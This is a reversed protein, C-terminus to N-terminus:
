NKYVEIRLIFALKYFAQERVRYYKSESFGMENYIEYDYLDELTMYRKTILERERMNLRNVAKRIREMFESREREFDVRKIAMSETTSHFDNTQSPPLISYTQTIKPVFEEPVTLLYIRYKELAEELADKTKKGDTDRLLSMQKSM